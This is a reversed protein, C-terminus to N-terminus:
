AKRREDLKDEVSKRLEALEKELRKVTPDVMDHGKSIGQELSHELGHTLGERTHQGSTPAFLLAVATGVGAGISLALVILAANRRAAHMEAEHSYYTRNNDM